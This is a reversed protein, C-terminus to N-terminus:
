PATINGYKTNFRIARSNNPATTGLNFGNTIVMGTSGIAVSGTSFNPFGENEGIPAPASLISTVLSGGNESKQLTDKIVIDTLPVNGRNIAQIRYAICQGPEIDTVAQKSFATTPLGDYNVGVTMLDKLSCDHVYQSKVLVLATNEKIVNGFDLNLDSGNIKVGARYTLVSPDFRFKRINPTTDISYLWNSPEIEEICLDSKGELDKASVAFNYQGLNTVDVTDIIPNASPSASCDSFRAKVAGMGDIGAENADRIGNFFSPNNYIGGILQSDPSTIGGNDNFVMGSFTYSKPTNTITCIIEDGYTANAVTFSRTKTTDDYTMAATPMVTTSGTTTNSCTYTADYNEIDGLTTGNMVRETITYSKSEILSLVASTGKTITKGTGTTTLSNAAISNGTVKIEFQDRKTNTDNIRSGNLAKKVVLKPPALCFYFDSYGVAHASDIESKINSHQLSVSSNATKYSWTADITCAGTGCNKGKIATVITRTANIEHFNPNFTLRGSQPSVNVEEIYPTSNNTTTSDLDQIKYGMTSVSRNISIDLIHNARPTNSVPSNHALNIANSTAGSISGYFPTNGGQNNNKDIVSSFKINFIKNGSAETFTFSKSLGEATWSLAQSTAGAPPKSGIYYMKHDSPCTAPASISGNDFISTVSNIDSASKTEASAKLTATAINQVTSGSAATVLTPVVISYSKGVPISSISYGTAGQLAAITPITSATCINNADTSDCSIDTQKSLGTVAPDKLIINKLPVDVTNTVTIIYDTINNTGISTLGDDKSITFAPLQVCFDDFVVEINQEDPNGKAAATNGYDISLETIPTDFSATVKCDNSFDSDSCLGFQGYTGDGSVTNGSTTIFKGDNSFISSVNKGDTSKAMFQVKDLWDYDALFRYQRDIDYASMSLNLLPKDFKYTITNTDNRSRMNQKIFFAGGKPSSANVAGNISQSSGNQTMSVSINIDDDPDTSGTATITSNLSNLPWQSYEQPKVTSSIYGSPCSAAFATSISLLLLVSALMIWRSVIFKIELTKSFFIM